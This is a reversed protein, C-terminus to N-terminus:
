KAGREQQQQTEHHRVVEVFHWASALGMYASALAAGILAVHSSM